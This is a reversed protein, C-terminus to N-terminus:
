ERTRKSRLPIRKVRGCNKCCIIIKGGLTRVRASASNGLFSNCSRCVLLGFYRDMRVNYRMGIKRALEVYRKARPLNKNEVSEREALTFLIHMREKAIATMEKTRRGMRSRRRFRQTVIKKNDM